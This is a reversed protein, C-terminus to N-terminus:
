NAEVRIMEEVSAQDIPTTLMQQVSWHKKDLLHAVLLNFRLYLGSKAPDMKPDNALFARKAEDYNFVSQRAVYDAYGERKWEPLAMYAMNGIAQGTLTHTIEHAIFFDLTREGAARYGSPGILGNEEIISNRMFVNTTFPYYNVGAVGYHQLFFLRQRWAANCVFVEHKQQASYLPSQALKAAASELVRQGAAAEFTRDSYLTLNKASVSTSFLPHPLNLLLLMAVPVIALIASTRWLAKKNFRM